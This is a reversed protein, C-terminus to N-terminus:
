LRTPVGASARAAKFPRVLAHFAQTSELNVLVVYSMASRGHHCTVEVPTYFSVAVGCNEFENAQGCIALPFPMCGMEYM